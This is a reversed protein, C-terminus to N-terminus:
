AAMFHFHWFDSSAANVARICVDPLFVVHCRSTQGNLGVRHKAKAESVAWLIPLKSVETILGVPARHRGGVNELLEAGVVVEDLSLLLV